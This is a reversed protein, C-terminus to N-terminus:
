ENEGDKICRVSYFYNKDDNTLEAKTKDYKVFMYYAYINTHESTSWWAGLQLPGRFSNDFNYGVGGPLAAFGFDDTGTPVGAPMWYNKAKLKTADAAVNTLLVNWEARSPIHWGEPCLGRHYPTTIACETDTSLTNNCKAPLAMATAWKYLRGALDCTTTNEDKLKADDVGGCKSGEVAYNLNSQFWTQTGIKVTQYTNDHHDVPEGYGVNITSSSSPIEESSSSQESSSSSSQTTSSSSPIGTSSSSVKNLWTQNEPLVITDTGDAMCGYFLTCFGCLFFCTILFIIKNM